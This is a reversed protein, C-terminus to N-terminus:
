HVMQQLMACDLDGFNEQDHAQAGEVGRRPGRSSELPRTVGEANMCFDGVLVHFDACCQKFKADTNM